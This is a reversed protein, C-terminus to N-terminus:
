NTILLMQASENEIQLFKGIRELLHLFFLDKRLLFVKKGWSKKNRLYGFLCFISTYLLLYVFNFKFSMIYVVRHKIVKIKCVALDIVFTLRHVTLRTGNALLFHKESNFVRSLIVM